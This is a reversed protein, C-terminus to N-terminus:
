KNVVVRAPKLVLEGIMYGPQIVEAITDKKGKNAISIAEHINLDFTDGEKVDIQKIDLENLVGSLKSLSASLGDLWSKVNDDLKLNEKARLGYYIDDVVSVLSTAVNKKLQSLRIELRRENNMELNHYDALAKKLKEEIVLKEDEVTDITLALKKITEEKEKIIEELEARCNCGGSKDDTIQSHSMGKLDNPKIGNKINKDSINADNSKSNTNM